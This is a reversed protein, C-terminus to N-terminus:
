EWGEMLRDIRSAAAALRVRGQELSVAVAILVLGVATLVIWLAAGRFEPVMQAIPMVLMGFLALLLTVSGVVVRRRVRTAAGLVCLGIGLLGAVLGYSTTTTVTQVLAAGVLLLMGAHDLLRLEPLAPRGARRGQARSMEVVVLLTLGVPVTLWQPDGGIADATLELWAGCALVPALRGLGPRALLLGGVAAELGIVLLAAALLGPRGDMAAALMGVGAASVALPLLASLWSTEWSWGARGAGSAEPDTSAPRRQGAWWLALSSATAALALALTALAWGSAPMRVAALLAQVAGFALLGSAPRLVPLGLPAAALAAAAASAALALALWGLGAVAAGVLTLAVAALAWRLDRRWAVLLSCAAGALCWATLVAPREGAASAIAAALGLAGLAVPARLWGLRLWQGPEPRGARLEDILLGGLLLLAGWGGLVARLGGGSVGARDALLLALPATLAWAWYSMAPRRLRPGLLIVVAIASALAAIVSWRDPVALAIGAASVVMAALALVVALPRRSALRGAVTGEALALMALALGSRELRTPGQLLGALDAAMLVLPPLGAAVM